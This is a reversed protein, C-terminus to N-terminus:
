VKARRKPLRRQLLSISAAHGLKDICLAQSARICEGPSCHLKSPQKVICWNNLSLIITSDFSMFVDIIQYMYSRELRNILLTAIKHCIEDDFSIKSKQQVVPIIVRKAFAVFICNLISESFLVLPFCTFLKLHLCVFIIM